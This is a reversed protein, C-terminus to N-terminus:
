SRESPSQCRSWCAPMHQLKTDMREERLVRQFKTLPGLGQVCPSCISPWQDPGPGRKGSPSISARLPSTDSTLDSLSSLFHPAQSGNATWLVQEQGQVQTKTDRASILGASREPPFIRPTQRRGGLRAPPTPVRPHPEPWPRSCRCTSGVSARSPLM